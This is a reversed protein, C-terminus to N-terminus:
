KEEEITFRFPKCIVQEQWDPNAEMEKGTGHNDKMSEQIIQVEIEGSPLDHIPILAFHSTSNSTFHPVFQFHIGLKKELKRVSTLHVYSGADFSYFVVSLKSDAPFSSRPKKQGSLISNAEALASEGTGIVAFARGPKRPGPQNETPEIQLSRRIQQITSKDLKEGRILSPLLKAEDGYVEPELERVDRTGPMEYAWVQSLPIEVADEACGVSDCLFLVLLIAVRVGM